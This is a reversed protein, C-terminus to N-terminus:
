AEQRIPRPGRAAAASLPSRGPLSMDHAAKAADAPNM